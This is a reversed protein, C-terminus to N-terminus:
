YIRRLDVWGSLGPLDVDVRVINIKLGNEMVRDDGYRM